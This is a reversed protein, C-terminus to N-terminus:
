SASAAASTVEGRCAMTTDPLFGPVAELTTSAHEAPREHSTRLPPPMKTTTDSPRLVGNEVRESVGELAAVPM